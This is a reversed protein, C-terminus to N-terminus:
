GSNAGEPLYCWRLVLGAPKPRRAILFPRAKPDARKRQAASAQGSSDFVGTGVFPRKGFNRMLVSLLHFIIGHMSRHPM